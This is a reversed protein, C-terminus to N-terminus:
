KEEEGLEVTRIKAYVICQETHEKLKQKTSPRAYRHDSHRIFSLFALSCCIYMILRENRKM